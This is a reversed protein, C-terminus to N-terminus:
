NDRYVSFVPLARFEFDWAALNEIHSGSTSEPGDFAVMDPAWWVFGMGRDEPIGKLMSVMKNFYDTQGQVTAPYGSLLQEELGIANHTNDNWDLTFPYTTEAVLVPRKFSDALTNLVEELYALDKSHYLSYYSIGIADFRANNETIRRFFNAAGELGAYHVMTIILSDTEEEVEALAKEASNVLACYNVFNDNQGLWLKGQPWLFGSNTENGIQVIRPITGQAVMKDMVHRTYRYVSDILDDIDLNIWGAPPYQQGPDAWGDSYHIDLLIGMGAGSIKKCLGLMNELSSANLVANQPNPSHFLRVRVLNVGNNRLFYYLNGIREGQEDMYPVQYPELFPQYSLDMGTYFPYKLEPGPDPQGGQPKEDKKCGILLMFISLLLVLSAKKMIAMTYDKM